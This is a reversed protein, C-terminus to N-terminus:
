QPGPIECILFPWERGVRERENLEKDIKWLDLKLPISSYGSKYKRLIKDYVFKKTEAESRNGLCLNLNFNQASSIIFKSTISDTTELYNKVLAERIEKAEELTVGLETSDDIDIDKRYIKTELESECCLKSMEEQGQDQGKRGAGYM